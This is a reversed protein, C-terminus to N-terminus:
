EGYDIVGNVTMSHMVFPQPVRDSFGNAPLPRGHLEVQVHQDEGTNDTNGRGAFMATAVGTADALRSAARALNLVTSASDQRHEFGGAGGRARRMTNPRPTSSDNYYQIIEVEKTSATPSYVISISRDVLGDGGRATNDENILQLAGTALRFPVHTNYPSRFYVITESGGGEFYGDNNADTRPAGGLIAVPTGDPHELYIDAGVIKSVFCNLPLFEGIAEMGISVPPLEAQLPVGDILGGVATLLSGEEVQIYPALEHAIPDVVQTRIRVFSEGESVTVDRALRTTVSYHAVVQARLGGADPPDIDLVIPAYEACQLLLGDHTLIQKGNETLLQVGWLAGWGGALVLVDVVRGESVVAKLQVGKSSPCVVGPSRRYGRGGSRVECHTVTNNAHDSLGDFEYLNGDAAGFLSSNIRAISPRGAVASAFSNPYRETWWAQREVDYCIAFTPTDEPQDKMCCFFRLIHTKPCVALFFTDRKSFDIQESIFWDAIPGSVPTIQGDRGMAYIGNEDAAYLVNQYIDWCRQHLCGRHAIMQIAGDVSPDTNYTVSYTHSHQMALLVSGFPVLATLSDTSRQNNQIPLDYTDPCSEFEDFESYYLTNADDGSTSVGYWLRDQFAVCVSMDTRPKGFRYANLNGNPLVIPLAAYNARDVNFLEEDTLTDSGVITIGDATPVGYADLRYFVLSQDASTRWLEVVDAREPPTVGPLSWKIESAHPRDDTPGAEVDVIPSFNSYAIPRTMDRVLVTRDLGLRMTTVIAYGTAPIGGAAPPSFVVPIKGVKHQSIGEATLVAQAVSYSGSDNQELVVRFVADGVGEGDRGLVRVTVEEDAAYGSGGSEIVIERAKGVTQDLDIEQSMEVQNGKVSLVKTHLPLLQSELLMGAKIGETSELELITPSDGRTATAKTTLIVTESRDAFRYACRYTGRLMPRMVPVATPKSSDTYLEPKSTYARGPDTIECSAVRGDEVTATVALGYGSGGGKVLVTPQTYYDRGGSVIRISTVRNEGTGPSVLEAQWSVTQAVSLGSSASFKHVPRWTSQGIAIAGSQVGLKAYWKGSSKRLETVQVRAIMGATISFLSRGVAAWPSPTTADVGNEDTLRLFYEGVVDIIVGDVRALPTNEPWVMKDLGVDTGNNTLVQSAPLLVEQDDCSLYDGVNIQSTSGSISRITAGAIQTGGSFTFESDKGDAVLIGEFELGTGSASSSLKRKLLTVEATDGSRYGDGVIDVYQSGALANPPGEPTLNDPETARFVFQAYRNTQSFSPHAGRLTPERVATNYDTKQAYANAQYIRVAFVTNREWGAGPDLVEITDPTVKGDSDRVVDVVPRPTIASRHWWQQRGGEFGKLAEKVAFPLNYDYSGNTNVDTIWTDPCSRLNIRIKPYRFTAGSQYAQSATRYAAKGAPSSVIAKATPKLDIIAYPMTTNGDYVTADVRIWNQIGDAFSGVCLWVSIKSYDPWYVDARRSISRGKQETSITGSYGFVYSQGSAQLGAYTRNEASNKKNFQSGQWYEDNIYTDWGVDKHGFASAEVGGEPTTYGDLTFTGLGYSYAAPSFELTSHAGQGVGKTTRLPMTARFRKRGQDWSADAYGVDTDRRFQVLYSINNQPIWPKTLTVTKATVNVSQVRIVATSTFAAPVVGSYVTCIDGVQIGNISELYMVSTSANSANAQAITKTSAGVVSARYMIRNNLVANTEGVTEDEAPAVGTITAPTTDVFGQVGPDAELNGVARFGSGMHDTGVQITPASVYGSGGDVVEISDLVGARILGKLKAPREPNGGTVTITPPAWYGSGGGLVEVTEVFYGLGDPECVPAVLPEPMGAPFASNAINDPRYILPEQGHGFFMIMRGHRDEAVSFNKIETDSEPALPLQAIVREQNGQIRRVIWVTELPIEGAAIQETTLVKDVISKQFCLLDIPDGVRVDRRYLGFVTEDDYKGYLKVIGPRAMLMGPRRPQLNVLARLEGKRLLYQSSEENFGLWQQIIM